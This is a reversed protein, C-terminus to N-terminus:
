WWQKILAALHNAFDKHGAADWHIGDIISARVIRSADLFHTNLEQSIQYYAPAIKKSQDIAGFFEEGLADSSVIAPPAVLMVEPKNYPSYDFTLAQRCLTEAGAKIDAISNALSAKVDNTGLMIIVLDLPRCSELYLELLKSGNRFDRNADDSNTTRGNLGAEIVNFDDNLLLSTLGPWRIDHDFRQGTGPVYGWTNSDGFCLINRM